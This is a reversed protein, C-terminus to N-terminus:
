SRERTYKLLGGALLMGAQRNTISLVANFQTGKTINKVVVLKGEVADEVQKRCNEIVLDDLMDLKNYDESDAFTLPLIGNNILNAMHIRAFSIAIVGKVGLQLPALAAHERSSGQGYNSGGIIFGGNNEKARAPFDPDCPTLCFNALHPVNSRFPLLKSNSPMIHDTTINDELKILTKGSVNEPLATNIPFPKINPGRVVEVENPNTSPMIVMNDNVKFSTPMTVVPAQGFDKPNTIVGTISA